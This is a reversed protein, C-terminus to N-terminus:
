AVKCLTLIGLAISPSTGGEVLGYAEIYDSGSTVQILEADVCSGFYSYSTNSSNSYGPGQATGYVRAGNKFVQCYAYVNAGTTAPTTVLSALYEGPELGTFRKNAADLKGRPDRRATDMNLKTWVNATVGTSSIQASMVHQLPFSIAGSAHLEQAKQGGAVLAWNDAGIRYAGNNTDSNFSWGPAGLTGDAAKIVSGDNYGGSASITITDTAADTAITVGSGAALTLFDAVADAVVNAQGAVQITKFAAVGAAAAAAIATVAAALQNTAAKDPAMGAAVLVNLIEAQIVNLHWAEVITAPQGAGPNGPSYWGPTGTPAPIAPMAPVATAHDAQFM